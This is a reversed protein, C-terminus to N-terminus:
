RAAATEGRAAARREANEWRRKRAATRHRTESAPPQEASTVARTARRPTRPAPANRAQAGAAPPIPQSMVLKQIPTDNAVPAASSASVDPQMGQQLTEIAQAPRVKAQDAVDAATLHNAPVVAPSSLDTLETGEPIVTVNDALDDALRSPAMNTAVEDSVASGADPVDSNKLESHVLANARVDATETSATDSPLPARQNQLQVRRQQASILLGVGAALLVFVQLCVLTLL